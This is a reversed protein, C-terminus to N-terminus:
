FRYSLGVFVGQYDFNDTKLYVYETNIGLNNRFRYEWGAAAHLGNETDNFSAGDKTYQYELKVRAAGLKAYFSNRETFGWRGYLSVRAAEFSDMQLETIGSTFAHVIGADSWLYGAEVGWNPTFHYRYYLETGWSDSSDNDEANGADPNFRSIDDDNQVGLGISGGIVHKGEEANAAPAMLTPMVLAAALIVYKM